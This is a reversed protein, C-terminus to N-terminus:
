KLLRQLKLLAGSLFFVILRDGPQIVTDGDILIAEDGRILGGLTLDHPLHISRVPRDTLDSHSRVEVEAVEADALAFTNGVPLRTGLIDRLIHSSTFLKKNVVKDINLSEAEPIYQLDEIQAITRKVGHEKAVMCSVINSAASDNLAVFLDMSGLQEEEMTHLDTTAANVVSIGDVAEALRRCRERDHDMVTVNFRRRMDRSLLGTIKGGGSIMVNHIKVEEHGTLRALSALDDPKVTFYAVDGPHPTDSGSPIIIRHGRRIAAVHFFRREQAFSSLRRRTLPAEEPIKVGVLLLKGDGFESWSIVWNHDTFHMIQSAVLMEPFVLSDIGGAKFNDLIAPTFYEPNEVRAVTRSAGLVHAIQCAAINTTQWPTVAVFLDADAAGARLLATPSTPDGVSVMMNHTSDLSALYDKDASMLVVDQNEYSLSTALHTGTDGSGAILIKMIVCKSVYYVIHRARLQKGYAIERFSGTITRM